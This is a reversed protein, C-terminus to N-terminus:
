RDKNVLNLQQRFEEESPLVLRYTSAFLQKNEELVSYKVLTDDKETCLIIGITPNDGPIKKLEEFMRLYMDMQGIDQHTLEGIKLDAIFFCKLLYNYFVLDLYYRKTETNICLQRAVFSFGRGMELLLHQIKGILAQELESESLGTPIALGLFDFLYPDKILSEPEIVQSRTPTPPSLKQPQNAIIREFYLNQINRELLRTGWGEDAAEKLYYERAVQHEIRLLLRYHSWTLEPRLADRIPFLFYFQRMKRLEREDL